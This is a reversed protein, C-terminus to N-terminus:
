FGAHSGEMVPGSHVPGLPLATEFSPRRLRHSRPAHQLHQRVDHARSRASWCQARQNGWTCSWYARPHTVTAVGRSSIPLLSPCRGCEEVLGALTYVALATLAHSGGGLNWLFKQCLQLSVIGGLSLWPCLLSGLCPPVVASVWNSSQGISGQLCPLGWPRSVRTCNWVWSLWLWPVGAQSLQLPSVM